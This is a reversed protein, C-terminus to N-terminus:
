NGTLITSEEKEVKQYAEAISIIGRKRLIKEEEDALYQSYYSYKDYSDIRERFIRGCRTCKSVKYTSITAYIYGADISYAIISRDLMKHGFFYCCMRIITNKIRALM